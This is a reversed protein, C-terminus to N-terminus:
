GPPPRKKTGVGPPLISVPIGFPNSNVTGDVITVPGYDWNAPVDVRLNRNQLLWLRAPRDTRGKRINGCFAKIQETTGKAYFDTTAEAVRESNGDGLYVDDQMLDM